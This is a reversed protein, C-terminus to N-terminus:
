EPHHSLLKLDQRDKPRGTAEKNRKLEDRAIVPVILGDLEVLMRNPWAEDFTVGDISTLLDIRQPPLGIQYVLDPLAFDEPTVGSTPAGFSLLAAWVKAANEATPRVWLDIDGTARPCGHLQWRM